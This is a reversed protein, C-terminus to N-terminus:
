WRQRWGQLSISLYGKTEAFPYNEKVEGGMITSGVGARRELVQCYMLFTHIM